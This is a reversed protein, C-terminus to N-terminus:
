KSARVKGEIVASADKYTFNVKRATCNHMDQSWPICDFKSWLAKKATSVCEEENAVSVPDYTVTYGGILGNPSGTIGTKLTLQCSAGNAFASSSMAICAAAFLLAKKM